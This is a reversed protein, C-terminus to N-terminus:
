EKISSGGSWRLVIAGLFGSLLSAILISLKAQDLLGSDTFALAAIFMSMTFGIGGLLSIGILSLGNEKGATIMERLTSYAHVSAITHMHVDLLDKM